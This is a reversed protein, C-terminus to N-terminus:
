LSVMAAADCVCPGVSPRRAVDSLMRLVVGVVRPSVHRRLPQLHQEKEVGARCGVRVRRLLVDLVSAGRRKYGRYASYGLCFSRLGGQAVFSAHLLRARPPPARMIMCASPYWVITYGVIPVHLVM